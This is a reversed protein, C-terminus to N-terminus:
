PMRDSMKEYQDSTYFKRLEYIRNKIPPHSALLETVTSVKDEEVEKKERYLKDPEVNESLKKGLALKTLATASSKFDRNAIVGGRDCTYERMQSSFILPLPITFGLIRLPVTWGYKVHSLEHGIVFMLEKESMAEVIATNLVVVKKLVGFAFANIRPDQIIFTDVPEMDLRASASKVMEYIGPLNEESVKMSRSILYNYFLKRSYLKGGVLLLIGGTLVGAIFVSALFGISFSQIAWSALDSTGIAVPLLIALLIVIM